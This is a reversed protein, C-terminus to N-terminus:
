LKVQDEPFDELRQKFDVIFRAADAGDILRHDYSLALPALMRPEITESDVAVPLFRSRGVGLIASEPPRIIPTFHTGGIGGQNSITVSAGEMDERTLKRDRAKGALDVIERSIELLSKSDAERLVPVYLGQETDVAVGVHVFERFVTENAALDIAANFVRHERLSQTLARILFATLTLKSGQEEYAAGYRDKWELIRSLDADEFQTVHPIGSWAESLRRAITKRLGSLPERSVSGWRSLDLTQAEATGASPAPKKAQAAKKELGRIYDRLDQQVIRGGRANGRVNRLDIGVQRALKRVSPAAAPPKGTPPEPEEQAAAEPEAPQRPEDREATAAASEERDQDAEERPAPEDGAGKGDEGEGEELRLIVDGVSLEDGERVLLKEIRGSAPCPVPAVAKENELELITDGESIEDGESVFLNVVAGSDAEEGLQPLEVDM